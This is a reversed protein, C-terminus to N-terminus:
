DKSFSLSMAQAILWICLAVVGIVEVGPFAFGPIVMLVTVLVAASMAVTFKRGHMADSAMSLIISIFCLTFFITAVLVHIEYDDGKNAIGVLALCIGGVAMFLGSAADLNKKTYAKGIGFILILAGGVICACNFLKAAFEVSSIGLDSLTNVNFTWNGDAFIAVAFALPLLAGALIGAMTFPAASKQKTVMRRHNRIAKINIELTIM